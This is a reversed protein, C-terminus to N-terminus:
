RTARLQSQHQAVDFPAPCDSRDVTVRVSDGDCQAPSVTAWDRMTPTLRLKTFLQGDCAGDHGAATGDIDAAALSHPMPFLVDSTLNLTSTIRASALLGLEPRPLRPGTTSSDAMPKRHPNTVSDPHSTDPSPQHSRLMVHHTTAAPFATTAWTRYCESAAVIPPTFHFVVSVPHASCTKTALFEANSAVAAAAEGDPCDQPIRRACVAHCCILSRGSLISRKSHPTNSRVDALYFFPLLPFRVVFLMTTSVRGDGRAHLCCLYGFVRTSTSDPPPPPPPPPAAPASAAASRGSASTDDVATSHVPVSSVSAIRSPATTSSPPHTTRRRELQRLAQTRMGAASGVHRRVSCFVDDLVDFGRAGDTGDAAVMGARAMRRKTDESEESDASEESDSSDTGGGSDELDSTNESSTAAGRTGETEGHRGKEVQQGGAEKARQQSAKEGNAHSKDGAQPGGAEEEASRKGYEGDENGGGDGGGDLGVAMRQLAAARLAGRSLGSDNCFMADLSQFLAVSAGGGGGGGGAEGAADSGLSGVAAGAVARSNRGSADTSCEASVRRKAERADGDGQAGEDGGGENEDDNGDSSSSSSSSSSAEPVAPAPVHKPAPQMTRRLSGEQCFACGLDLFRLPPERDSPSSPAVVADERLAVVELRTDAFVFRSAPATREAPVGSESVSV